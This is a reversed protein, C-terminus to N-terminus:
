PRSHTRDVLKAVTEELKALAEAWRRSAALHEDLKKEVVGAAKTLRCIEADTHEIKTLLDGEILDLGGEVRRKFGLWSRRLPLVGRRWIIGLASLGTAVLVIFEIWPQLSLVPIPTLIETTM